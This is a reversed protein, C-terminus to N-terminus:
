LTVLIDKGSAVLKEVITDRIQDLSTHSMPQVIAVRYTEGGADAATDAAPTSGATDAGCGTLTLALAACLAFLQKKM